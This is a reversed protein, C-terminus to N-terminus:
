EVQRRFTELDFLDGMRVTSTGYHERDRWVSPLIAVRQTEQALYLLSMASLLQGVEGSWSDATLYRVDRRLADYLSM